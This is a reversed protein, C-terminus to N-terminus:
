QHYPILHVPVKELKTCSKFVEILENAIEPYDHLQSQVVVFVAEPDSNYNEIIGDAIAEPVGVVKTLLQYVQFSYRLEGQNLNLIEQITFRYINQQMDHYMKSTLKYGNEEFLFLVEDSYRKDNCTEEILKEAAEMENPSKKGYALRIKNAQEVSFGLVKTCIDILQESYLLVGNTPILIEKVQQISM